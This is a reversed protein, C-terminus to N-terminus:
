RNGTGHFRARRRAVAVFEQFLASSFANGTMREPHWQVGVLWHAGTGEVAEVIGDPARAVVRLDRGLERIAQHHSSNVEAQWSGALRVLQSGDELQVSHKPERSGQERDHWQHPLAAPIESAIDQVLSGGLYVNLLQVGYCIALVPKDETFAHDLLAYDTEERLPDADATEARRANGYRAPDVDARSGPLVIGDLTQVLREREAKTSTLPILVAEGGATEVARLYPAIKEIEGAAEERATRFPVGIRPRRDSEPLMSAAM